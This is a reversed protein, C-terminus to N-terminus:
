RSLSESEKQSVSSFRSVRRRLFIVFFYSFRSFCNTFLYNTPDISHLLTLLKYERRLPRAHTVVTSVLQVTVFFYVCLSVSLLFPYLFLLM